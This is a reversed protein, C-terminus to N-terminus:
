VKYQTRRSKKWCKRNKRLRDGYRCECETGEIAWQRRFGQTEASALLVSASRVPRVTTTPDSKIVMPSVEQGAIEWVRPPRSATVERLPEAQTIPRLIRFEACEAVVLCPQRSKNRVSVAIIEM